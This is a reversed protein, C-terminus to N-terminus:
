KNWPVAKLDAPFPNGGAGWLSNAGGADGASWGSPQGSPVVVANPQAYYSGAGTTDLSAPQYYNGSSRSPENQIIQQGRDLGIRESVWPSWNSGNDIGLPRNGFFSFPGSQSLGVWSAGAAYPLINAYLVNPYFANAYINWSNQPIVAGPSWSFPSYFYPHAFSSLGSDGPANFANFLVANNLPGAVRNAASAFGLGSEHRYANANPCLAQSSAYASLPLNFFLCNNSANPWIYQDALSAACNWATISFSASLLAGTLRFM